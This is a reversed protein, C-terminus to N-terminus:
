KNNKNFKAQQRLPISCFALTLGTLSSFLVNKNFKLTRCTKPMKQYM